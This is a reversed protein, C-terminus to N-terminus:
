RFRVAVVVVFVIQCISQNVGSFVFLVSSSAAAGVLGRIAGIGVSWVRIAGIDVACITNVSAVLYIKM